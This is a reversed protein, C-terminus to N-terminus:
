TQRYANMYTQRDTQRYANMYKQRDTQICEHIDTQRYANMYTGNQVLRIRNIVLYSMGTEIGGWISKYIQCGLM